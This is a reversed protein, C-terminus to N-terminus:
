AKPPELHGCLVVLDEERFPCEGLLDALEVYDQPRLDPKSRKLLDELQTRNTSSVMRYFADNKTKAKELNKKSAEIKARLQTVAAMAICNAITGKVGKSGFCSKYFRNQAAQTGEVGKPRM